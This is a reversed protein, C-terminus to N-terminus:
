VHRKLVAIVLSNRWILIERVSAGVGAFSTMPGRGTDEVAIIGLLTARRGPANKPVDSFVGRNYVNISVRISRIPRTHM